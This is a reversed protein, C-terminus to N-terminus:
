GKSPGMDQEGAFVLPWFASLPRLTRNQGRGSDVRYQGIEQTWGLPWYRKHVANDSGYGM